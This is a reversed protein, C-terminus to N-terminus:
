TLRQVFDILEGQWPQIERENKPFERFIGYRNFSFHKVINQAAMKSKLDNETLSTGFGQAGCFGVQVTNITAKANSGEIDVNPKIFFEANLLKEDTREANALSPDWTRPLIIRVTRFLARQATAEYLMASAKTFQDKIKVILSPDNTINTDIAVRVNRYENHDFVLKSSTTSPKKCCIANGGYKQRCEDNGSPLAMAPCRNESAVPSTLYCAGATGSCDALNTESTPRCTFYSHIKAWRDDCRWSNDEGLVAVSLRVWDACTGANFRALNLDQDHWLTSVVRGFAEPTMQGDFYGNKFLIDEIKSLTSQPLASQMKAYVDEPKEVTFDRLLNYTFAIYTSASCDGRPLCSERLEDFTEMIYPMFNTRREPTLDGAVDLIRDIRRYAATFRKSCTVTEIHTEQEVCCQLPQGYGNTGCGGTHDTAVANSCYRPLVCSGDRQFNPGAVSNGVCGSLEIHCCHSGCQFPNTSNLTMAEGNNLLCVEKNTCSGPKQNGTGLQTWACEDENIENAKWPEFLQGDSYYCDRVAVVPGIFFAVLLLLSTKNM